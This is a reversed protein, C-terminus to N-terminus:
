WSEDKSSTSSFFIEGGDDGTACIVSNFSPDSCSSFSSSVAEFAEDTKSFSRVIGGSCSGRFALWSSGTTASPGVSSTALGFDGFRNFELSTGAVLLGLSVGSNFRPGDLVPDIVGFLLAARCDGTAFDDGVGIAVGTADM